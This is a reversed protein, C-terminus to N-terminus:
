IIYKVGTLVSLGPIKRLIRCTLVSLALVLVTTLAILGMGEPLIRELGRYLVLRYFGDLLMIQYSYKGLATLIIDIVRIKAAAGALKVALFYLLCILCLGMIFDILWINNIDAHFRFYGCIGAAALSVALMAYLARKKNFLQVIRYQATLMGALFFPFMRVVNTLQFIDTIELRNWRLYLNLAVTVAFLIWMRVTHNWLLPAILFMILLCYSFWYLNGCLFADYLQEKLSGAHLFAPAAINTFLLKLCSMFLFPILIRRVKKGYFKRIDQRHCLYGALFIFLPVHVNELTICLCIYFLNNWFIESFFIVHYFVVLIISFAKLYDIEKKIGPAEM